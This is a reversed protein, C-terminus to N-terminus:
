YDGYITFIYFTEANNTNFKLGYNAQMSMGGGMPRIITSFAPVTGSATVAPIPVERFLYTNSGDYIFARVMGATTNGGAHIVVAVWMAGNTGFTPGNGYTGTVGDRNTNATAISLLNVKPTLAFIPATNAAM